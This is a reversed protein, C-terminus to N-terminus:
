LEATLLAFASANNTRLSGAGQASGVSAHTTSLKVQMLGISAIGIVSAVGVGGNINADFHAVNSVSLTSEARMITPFDVLWAGTTAASTNGGAAFGKADGEVMLWTYRQCMALETAIDRHTFDTDTSGLKYDLGTIFVNNSTNDLLNVQYSTALETSGGVNWAGATSTKGTAGVAMMIQITLGIGNDDAIATGSTDGPITVSKKEWANTANITFETSYKRTADNRDLNVTFIGTKTSKIWFSLKASLAGAAGHGFFTVNQAEIKHSLYLAADAGAITEATTVDIKLSNMFKTGAQALTPVDASQTITVAGATTGTDIWEMRDLTYQSTTLTAFSTGRQAIRMDGNIVFSDAVSKNDIYAKISESSAVKTASASAMADDDQFANGSIIGTLVPSAYTKASFTQSATLLAITGTANPLTITRDATPDTVNVTTQFADDTSGEFSIGGSGLYLKKWAKAEAGLSDTDHADSVLSTNIAVSGLNDLAPTANASLGPVAFHFPVDTHTSKSTILTFISNSGYDASDLWALYVGNNDTTFSPVASGGSQAEYATAVVTPTSPASSLFEYIVATGGVVINGAGDLYVGHVPFRAM